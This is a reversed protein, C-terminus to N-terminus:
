LLNIILRIDLDVKKKQITFFFSQFETTKLLM